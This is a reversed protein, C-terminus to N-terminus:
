ILLLGFVKTQRYVLVHEWIGIQTQVEVYATWLFSAKDQPKMQMTFSTDYIFNWKCLLGHMPFPICIDTVWFFVFTNNTLIDQVKIQMTLGAESLTYIYRNALLFRIHWLSPTM